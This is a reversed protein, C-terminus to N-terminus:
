AYQKKSTHAAAARIANTVDRFFISLSEPDIAIGHDACAILKGGFKIISDLEEKIDKDIVRNFARNCTVINCAVDKREDQNMLRFKNM